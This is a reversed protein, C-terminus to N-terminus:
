RSLSLAAAWDDILAEVVLLCREVSSWDIIEPTDTPRHYEPFGGDRVALLSVERLGALRALVPDTWGGLRWRPLGVGARGAAREALRVEDPGYRVPWLGGEGELVMPQGSGITDLRIVLTTRRDLGAAYERLWAAMGGMGSEECGPLLVIM